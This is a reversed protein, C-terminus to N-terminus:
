WLLYSQFALTVTTLYLQAVLTVSGAIGIAVGYPVMTKSTGAFAAFKPGLYAPLFTHKLLLITLALLAGFISMVMFFPYLDHCGVLLVTATLFKADGGGIIRGAFLVLGILLVAVASVITYLADDLPGFFALRFHGFVAVTICIWNPIRLTRLDGYAAIALVFIASLTILTSFTTSL